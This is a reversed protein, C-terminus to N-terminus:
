KLRFLKALQFTTRLLDVHRQPTFGPPPDFGILQQSAVTQPETYALLGQIGHRRGLGSAGMGGMPADNSAYASGYGENINVTGCRIRAALRRGHALNETWISANLGYQTSNALAVADDESDFRYVSVVPGFTEEACVEMDPTVNELITPEHFLPGIDPRARGGTRVTAGAARADAIHRTVTDLQATNALPGIDYSYNLGRGLVLQETAAAFRDVFEDYRSSAVYIREIGLCLQGTHGFCARVAGKIAKAIDADDLIIMPNKGGLELCCGILRDAAQRAIIRGAASSGTFCIHDANDIVPTGVVSSSGVVIQWLDPDLGAEVLVNRAYLATLATQTAPKHIVANGALLAPIIDVIGLSLPANWPSIVAVLGKPKRLEHTRTAFPIAGARNRPALFKPARRGYYLAVGAADLVEEFANARAKGTEAQVIDLATADTLIRDHFRLFPARRDRPATAAWRQQARRATSVAATVDGPLSHRLTALPEGTAPAFNTVEPGSGSLHATLLDVITSSLRASPTTSTM